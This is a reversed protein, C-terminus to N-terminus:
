AIRALAGLRPGDLLLDHVPVRRRNEYGYLDAPFKIGKPMAWLLIEGYRGGPTEGKAWASPLPM